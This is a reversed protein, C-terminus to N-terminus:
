KVKVRYSTWATPIFGIPTNTATDVVSIGAVSLSAVYIKTNDTNKDVSIAGSIGPITAIVGGLGSAQGGNYYTPDILTVTGTNFNATYTNGNDMLVSGHCGVIPAANAVFSYNIIDRKNWNASWFNSMYAYRGDNSIELGHPSGGTAAVGLLAWTDPHRAEIVGSTIATTVLKQGNKTFKFARPRLNAMTHTAIITNTVADIVTFTSNLANAIWVEQWGPRIQVYRPQALGGITALLPPTPNSPNTLDYIEVVGTNYGTVYLKMTYPNFDLARSPGVGTTFTNIVTDTTTDFVTVTGNAVVQTFWLNVVPPPTIIDEQLQHPRQSLKVVTDKDVIFLVPNWYEGDLAIPETTLQGPNRPDEIYYAGEILQHSPFKYKGDQAIVFHDSDIVEVVIHTSLKEKDRADGPLWNNGDYYLPDLVSYGHGVQNIKIDDDDRKIQEYVMTTEDYTYFALGSNISNPDDSADQVVYLTDETGPTPLAAYNIVTEISAGWPASVLALQNTTEDYSYHAEGAIADPGTSADLVRYIVDINLPTPISTYNPVTVVVQDQSTQLSSADVLEFKNETHNYVMVTNQPQLSSRLFDKMVAIRLKRNAQASTSAKKPGTLAM